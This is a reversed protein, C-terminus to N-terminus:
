KINIHIIEKKNRMWMIAKKYDIFDNTIIIRITSLLNLGQILDRGIKNCNM